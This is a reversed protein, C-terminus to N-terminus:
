RKEAHETEKNEKKRQKDKRVAYDLADALRQLDCTGEEILIVDPM